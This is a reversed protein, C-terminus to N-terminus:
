HHEQQNALYKKVDDIGSYSVAFAGYGDQWKFAKLNPFEKHIWGSSNSKVARVVDAVTITRRMSVLLHVHDPMGGAMILRSSQKEMIGAM